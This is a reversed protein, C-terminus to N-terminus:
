FRWTFGLTPVTPLYHLRQLELQPQGPTDEDTVDYEVCCDNSWNLLNNVELFVTLVGAGETSFRRAVRADITRYDGLREANRAGVAILAMPETEALEVDTTPWGTHYTGALSLEWRDGRWAIGGTFFHVQDWSRRTTAGAIDDEVSSWTYSLWWSLPRGDDSRLLLEVGSARARDPAIRIRDPKLEPLLVFSNLLNEYRPRVHRYDKRYAEVRGEIGGPWFHELSAVLHDASQPRHFETEGDSIQLESAAQTQFFRGWSARLRTREGVPYMLSLRPSLQDDGDKSLTERDWRLGADVTLREVPEFRLNAYLGYQDGDARVNRVSSRDPEQPAGPTLFLTDFEVDDTYEYDGRMVRWEGGFQLLVHSAIRWSWDTQLSEVGFSREDRLTGIAIGPQNANGRRSSDLESHALLANGSIASTPQYDFRLWYYADRYDARAEEERDADHLTIADDFVLANGSVSLADTAQWAVRAYADSYVPRGVDADMANILLDLNGRRASALWEGRDDGFHGSLLASANFFSLSVERYAPAAPMVPDIDIVGSMRDGFAVPFGGTYVHMASVVAPDITSFAGQFDKLHFPNQLRLDDFRILTEDADGGRVYAKASFETSAAGPLRAVARLPDDGIDPLLQLDAATLSVLSVAPERMFQYQSASVIVEELKPAAAAAPSARAAGASSQPEAAQKRVLLLSGNPGDVAELAYPELIEQLIARDDTAVPERRVRMSPQILDSSYLIDLGRQELVRLAQEITLRGFDGSALAIGPDAFLAAAAAALLASRGCRVSSLAPFEGRM